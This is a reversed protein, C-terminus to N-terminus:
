VKKTVIEYEQGHVTQVIMKGVIRSGSFHVGPKETFSIESDIWEGEELNFHGIFSCEPCDGAMFYHDFIEDVYVDLIETCTPCENLSADM